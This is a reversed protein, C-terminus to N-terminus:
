TCILFSFCLLASLMRIYEFGFMSSSNWRLLLRSNYDASVISYIFLNYKAKCGGGGGTECLCHSVFIFKEESKRLKPWLLFIKKQCFFVALKLKNINILNEPGHILLVFIKELWKVKQFPTRRPYLTRRLHAYLSFKYLYIRKLYSDLM